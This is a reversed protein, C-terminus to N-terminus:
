RGCRGSARALSFHRPPGRAKNPMQWRRKRLKNRIGAGSGKRPQWIIWAVLLLRRRSSDADAMAPHPAVQMSGFDELLILSGPRSNYRVNYVTEIRRGASRTRDACFMGPWGRTKM